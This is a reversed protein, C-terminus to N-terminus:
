SDGKVHLNQTNKSLGPADYLVRQLQGNECMGCTVNYDLVFLFSMKVKGRTHSDVQSILNINLM